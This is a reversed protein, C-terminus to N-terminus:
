GKVGRLPVDVGLVALGRFADITSHPHATDLVDGLLDLADCSLLPFHNTAGMAGREAGTLPHRSAFLGEFRANMETGPESPATYIAGTSLLTKRASDGAPWLEVRVVILDQLHTVTM